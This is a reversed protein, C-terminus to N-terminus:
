TLGILRDIQEVQEDTLIYGFDDCHLVGAGEMYRFLLRTNDKMIVAIDRCDGRVLKLFKMSVATNGGNAVGGDENIWIEGEEFQDYFLDFEYQNIEIQTYKQNLGSLFSLMEAIKDAESVTLYVTENSFGYNPDRIEIYATDELLNVPWNDTGDPVYCYFSFVYYSGDYTVIVRNTEGDDPLYKYVRVDTVSGNAHSVYGVPEGVNEKAASKSLEIDSKNPMYLMSNMYFGRLDDLEGQEVDQTPQPVTNQTPQPETKNIPNMSFIWIASVIAFCAAVAAWKVWVNKTRKPMADAADIYAPDILEMKYLLENGRM